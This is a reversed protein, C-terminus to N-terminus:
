RRPIEKGILYRWISFHFPFNQPVKQAAKAAEARAYENYKDIAELDSRNQSLVCQSFLFDINSFWQLFYSIVQCCYKVYDEALNMDDQRFLFSWFQGSSDYSQVFLVELNAFAMEPEIM